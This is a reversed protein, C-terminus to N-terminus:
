SQSYHGALREPYVWGSGAVSTSDIREFTAGCDKLTSCGGFAVFCFLRTGKVAGLVCGFLDIGCAALEWSGGASFHGDCHVLDILVACAGHFGEDIWRSGTVIELSCFDYVSSIQTSIYTVFFTGPIPPSDKVVAFSKGTITCIGAPM